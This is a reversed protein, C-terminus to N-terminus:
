EKRHSVAHRVVGDVETGRVARQLEDELLPRDSLLLVFTQPGATADLVLSFPAHRGGTAGDEEAQGFVEVAGTGDVGALVSWEHGQPDYRLQVRQGAALPEGEAVARVGSAGDTWVELPLDVGKTRTTGVEGGVPDAAPDDGLGGVIVPVVVLTAVAAALLPAVFGIRLFRRWGPEADLGRLADPMPTLEFARREAEQARLRAACEPCADLHQRLAVAEAGAIEGYRYQHLVLTSLHGSM